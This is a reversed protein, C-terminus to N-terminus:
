KICYTTTYYLAGDPQLSIVKFLVDGCDLNRWLADLAPETWLKCAHACRALSCKDLSPSLILELIDINRLVDKSDM